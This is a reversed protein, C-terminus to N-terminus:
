LAPHKEHIKFIVEFDKFKETPYQNEIFINLKDNKSFFHNNKRGKSNPFNRISDISYSYRKYSSPKQITEDILEGNKILKYKVTFMNDAIYKDLKIINKIDEDNNQNNSRIDFVVAYLGKRPIQVNVNIPEKKSPDFPIEVIPTRDIKRNYEYFICSGLLLAVAVLSILGISIIKM